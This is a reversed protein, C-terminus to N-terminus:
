RMREVDVDHNRKGYHDTWEAGQPMVNHWRHVTSPQLMEVNAAILNQWGQWVHTLATLWGEMMALQIRVVDTVLRDM